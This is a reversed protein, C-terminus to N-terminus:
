ARQVRCAFCGRRAFHVHAYATEPLTFLRRLLPVIDAGEAIDADLMMGNEAYARASLTRGALVPPPDGARDFAPHAGERVFIPGSAKYPSHAPQHEYPLLLVREGPEADELTVRCPFGPKEDVTVRRMGRSGLQQDTLDFLNSFQESDLGRYRLDMDAETEITCVM